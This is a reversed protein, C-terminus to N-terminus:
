VPDVEKESKDYWDAVWVRQYRDDNVFAARVEYGRIVAQEVAMYNAWEEPTPFQDFLKFQIAQNIQRINCDHYSLIGRSDEGSLGEVPPHLLFVRWGTFSLRAYVRDSTTTSM